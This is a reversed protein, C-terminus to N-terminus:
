VSDGSHYASMLCDSVSQSQGSSISQRILKQGIAQARIWGCSPQSNSNRDIDATASPQGCSMSPEQVTMSSTSTSYIDHGTLGVICDIQSKDGVPGDVHEVTQSDHNDPEAGIPVRVIEEQLRQIVHPLHSVDHPISEALSGHAGSRMQSFHCYQTIFANICPANVCDSLWLKNNTKLQQLIMTRRSHANLIYTGDFLRLRKRRNAMVTTRALSDTWMHNRQSGVM